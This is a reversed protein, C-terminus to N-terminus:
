KNMRENIKPVAWAVFSDRRDYGGSRKGDVELFFLYKWARHPGTAYIFEAQVSVQICHSVTLRFHLANNLEQHKILGTLRKQTIFKM